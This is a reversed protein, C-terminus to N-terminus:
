QAGKNKILELAESPTVVMIGFREAGSFDRVNFTVIGDGDGYIATELVMEDDPDKLVPRLFYRTDVPKGLSCISDLMLEIDQPGLELEMMIGSRFLVDEYQLALPVSLLCEIEGGLFKRLLARSAGKRSRLAAVIVNTDLVLKM